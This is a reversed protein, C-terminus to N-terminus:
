YLARLFERLANQVLPPIAHGGEFSLLSGDLGCDRLLKELKRAGSFGLIPDAIGHSQFFPLNKRRPALEAWANANILNGSLIALGLPNEPARLALDVALMAGQSFGGLILRDWPTALEKLFEGAAARAEKLNDPDSDSWDLAHGTRQSREIDAADIPFWARGGWSLTLPADPFLWRTPKDLTLEQAIPALDAGNAGYGHFIVISPADAPAPFEITTLGGIQRRRPTLTEEM